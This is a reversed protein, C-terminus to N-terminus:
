AIWVLNFIRITETTDDVYFSILGNGHEGFYTERFEPEGTPPYVPWADWPAEVLRLIREMFSRYAVTDQQLDHFQNLARGTLIPRYSM